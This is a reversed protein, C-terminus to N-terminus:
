GVICIRESYGCIVVDYCLDGSYAGTIECLQRGSRNVVAGLAEGSVAAECLFAHGPYGFPRLERRPLVICSLDTGTVDRPSLGATARRAGLKTILAAALGHPDRETARASGALMAGVLIGVLLIRPTTM